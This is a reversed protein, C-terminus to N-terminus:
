GNKKPFVLPWGVQTEVSETSAKPGNGRLLELESSLEILRRSSKSKEAELQMELGGVQSQMFNHEEELKKMEKERDQLAKELEHKKIELESFAM